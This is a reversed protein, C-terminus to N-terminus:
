RRQSPLANVTATSTTARCRGVIRSNASDAGAPAIKPTLMTSPKVASLIVVTASAVSIPASCGASTNSTAPAQNPSFTPARSIPQVATDIAPMPM